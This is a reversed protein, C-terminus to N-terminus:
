TANPLENFGTPDHKRLSRALWLSSVRLFYKSSCQLVGFQLDQGPLSFGIATQSFHAWLVASFPQMQPGNAEMGIHRVNRDFHNVRLTRVEAKRAELAKRCVVAIVFVLGAKMTTVECVGVSNGIGVEHQAQAPGYRIKPLQPIASAIPASSPKTLTASPLEGSNGNRRVRDPIRWEVLGADLCNADYM